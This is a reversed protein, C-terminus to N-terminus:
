CLHISTENFMGGGDETPVSDEAATEGEVISPVCIRSV